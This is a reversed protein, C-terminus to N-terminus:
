QRVQAESADYECRAACKREVACLCARRNSVILAARRETRAAARGGSGNASSRPQGARERQQAAARSDVRERQQAVVQGATYAPLRGPQQHIRRGQSTPVVRSPSASLSHRAHSARASIAASCCALCLASADELPSPQPPACPHDRCKAVAIMYSTFHAELAAGHCDRGEPRRSVGQEELRHAWRRSCRQQQSALCLFLLPRALSRAHLVSPPPDLGNQFPPRVRNPFKEVTHCGYKALPACLFCLTVTRDHVQQDGCQTPRSVEPACHPRRVCSRAPRPRPM